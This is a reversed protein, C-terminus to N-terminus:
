EPPPEQGPPGPPPAGAGPPGGPPPMAGPPAGGPPPEGPPNGASQSPDESSLLDDMEQTTQMMKAFPATKLLGAALEDITMDGIKTRTGPDNPNNPDDPMDVERSFHYRTPDPSRSFLHLDLDRRPTTSGLIAIPDIDDGDRGVWLEISRRPNRKFQERSGPMAWPTSRVGFLDRGTVPDKKFFEVRHNTAVGALPPQMHSPQGRLTHGVSIPPPANRANLAAAIRELRARDFKEVGKGDDRVHDHEDLIFFSPLEEYGAAKLQADFRRPDYV